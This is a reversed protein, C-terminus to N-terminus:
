AATPSYKAFLLNSSAMTVTVDIDKLLFKELAIIPTLTKGSLLSFLTTWFSLLPFPRKAFYTFDVM